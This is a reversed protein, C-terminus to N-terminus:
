HVFQLNLSYLFFTQTKHFYVNCYIEQYEWTKAKLILNSHGSPTCYCCLHELFVLLSGLIIVFYYIFQLNHEQGATQKLRAFTKKM